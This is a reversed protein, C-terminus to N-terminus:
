TDNRQTFWTRALNAVSGDSIMEAIALDLKARLEDRGKGIAVATGQTSVAEFLVIRLAPYDTPLIQEFYSSSGFVLDVQGSALAMLASTASDFSVYSLNRDALHTEHITGAHVGIRATEPAPSATTGVYASPASSPLYITSFDVIELRADSVGLGSMALDFQGSAVGPILADFETIVWECTLAARACMEDGLARDFGTLEGTDDLMVFPAFTTEAGIRVTEAALGSAALGSAALLLAALWSRATM